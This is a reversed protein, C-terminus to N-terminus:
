ETRLSEVPNAMAAKFSQYGIAFSAIVLAMLGSIAFMWWTINTHYAYNNLWKSMVWWAAPFAVLLSGAVLKVFDKALMSVISGANAGLVRRIGIEKIRTQTAFTALGFLGLCSVIISIISFINFLTAMRQETLYLRSLDQDIFDYSFPYDGYVEKFIKQLSAIVPKSNAQTTKLVVFGGLKTHQLILPEITQQVPKFNFDKIVGVITGSKGNSSIQKGIATEATMGMVLAAKENIMFNSDDAETDDRFTRGTILHMGFTEIFRGDVGIHPFMIQVSPDKGPWLVHTTGSTLLTPLHEVLTYNSISPNEKLAAKFYQFNNRRDGKRPMPVYVLNEKTYGMDRSRIFSLQENVVLTSIMLIVSIAFQGVVLGSRLYSRQRVNTNNGKLISVPKFASLFFAPYSGSVLGVLLAIGLLSGLIKGNLLDISISKAALQNFLPLLAYAIFTGIVLSLLAILLSETMFQAVLQRRRAGITKRLGVEKARRGAMATSLNMFNICAILLIFIAILSFINVSQISGLGEVDLLYHSRLHIDTLPQLIFKAKTGTNDNAAYIGDIKKELSTISAPTIKFADNLQVYAYISFNDWVENSKAYFSFPLLMTFQLHSNHPIDQLVGTVTYNNGKIDNDVHLIKGIPNVDGFYKIATAKTIVVGDPRSLATEKNGQLLPYNFMELFNSDAYFISKEEFNESGASVVSKLPVIRTVHAVAPEQKQFLTTVPTPTVAADVDSLKVAIRYIHSANTNFRDYSREDQVWLLILISCAMGTALGFVNLVTFLKNRKLSRIAALLYNRFM